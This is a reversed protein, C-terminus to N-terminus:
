EDRKSEEGETKESVLHLAPPDDTTGFNKDLFYEYFEGRLGLLRKSLLNFSAGGSVGGDIKPMQKPSQLEPLQELKAEVDQYIRVIQDVAMLEIESLQRQEGIHEYVVRLAYDRAESQDAVVMDAACVSFFPMVVLALALIRFVGFM